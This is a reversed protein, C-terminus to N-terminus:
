KVGAYKKVMQAIREAQQRDNPDHYQRHQDLSKWYLLLTTKEWSNWDKLFWRVRLPRSNAKPTAVRKIEVAGANDTLTIANNLAFSSEVKKWRDRCEEDDCVRCFREQTQNEYITCGKGRLM